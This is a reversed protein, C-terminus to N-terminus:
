RLDLQVEMRLLLDAQVALLSEYPRRNDKLQPVDSIRM